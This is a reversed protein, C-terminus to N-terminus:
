GRRSRVRGQMEETEEIEETNLYVYLMQRKMRRKHQDISAM